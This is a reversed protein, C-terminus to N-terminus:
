HGELTEDLALESCALYDDSLHGLPLSEDLPEEQALADISPIVEFDVDWEPVPAAAVVAPAPPAPTTAPPTSFLNVALVLGAAVAVGGIWRRWVSWLTRSPTPELRIKEWVKARFLPGPEMEPLQGLLEWSAQLEKWELACVSCQGLHEELRRLRPEELVGDLRESMWEQAQQCKM